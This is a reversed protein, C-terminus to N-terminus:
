AAEKTFLLRLTAIEWPKLHLRVTGNSVLLPEPRRELLNVKEAARFGPPLAIAAEGGQGRFEVLRLVLGDGAEAWKLAALRAAASELRPMPPLNAVGPACVLATNYAEGDLVVSSEAFPRDYASVAFAFDHDGSDRMGDWETMTYYDPEHLYTPIAPSRLLSLLIVQSCAAGTEVRYSPTGQNFLAVSLGPQEVGAWHIAPWDGNPGAWRFEAPYPRRELVGYPIEYVHRAAADPHCPVPMAVRLRHNFADWAVHAAFDVRALGEVLTVALRARLCRGSLGLERPAEVEFVLREWAASTEVAALRTFPALSVRAQDPYLTAWPSGEDHELILEGPRVGDAALIERGLAKDYVASLGHADARVLFRRNEITAGGPFHDVPQSLPAPATGPGVRYVRASFPPLDEVLFAVGTQGGVSASSDLVPIPCSHEDVIAVPGPFAVPAACVATVAQGTSNIVSFEGDQGQRLLASLALDRYCATELDIKRWFSELERYAADVHTATIADHFMTFYQDQRLSKLDEAPYPLGKLAAMVSLAEVALVAHEQRRVSQKTKIRTVLCGSNNPNLEPAPHLDLDAASPNELADLWSQVYPQVDEELAFRVDYEQRMAEAWELLGPNPLLEEPTVWVLGAGFEALADADIPGPLGARLGPEIGRGACVPCAAGAQEGCGRCAPCPPYKIVGGGWAVIPLSRALITSGDLGRWYRGQPPSYSMGTAWDIECGRLIQPLQSSNGFADNRVTLRTPQGFTQEVWLLGDVFNRALSEGHIMNADVIAEGAGTIAFRGECALQQLIPLAEPCRELFKRVVQASEAAFKYGPDRRALELNDLMYFAQLDTYSVYTQGQFTFPRLWCRRWTLDFHNNVVIYLAPKAPTTPM